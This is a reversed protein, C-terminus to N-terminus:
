MGMMAFLGDLRCFRSDQKALTLVQIFLLKRSRLGLLDSISSTPGGLYVWSNLLVLKFRSQQEIVCLGVTRFRPTVNSGDSDKVCCMFLVVFDAKKWRRLKALIRGNSESESASVKTWAKM